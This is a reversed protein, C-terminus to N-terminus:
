KYKRSEFTCVLMVAMQQEKYFYHSILDVHEPLHCPCLHLHIDKNRSIKLCSMNLASFM